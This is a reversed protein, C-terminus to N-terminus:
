QMTTQTVDKIERMTQFGDPLPYPKLQRVSLMLGVTDTVILNPLRKTKIMSAAANKIADSTLQTSVAVFYLTLNKPFDCYKDIKLAVNKQLDQKTETTFVDIGFIGEATYVLFDARNKGEGYYKQTHVYPEGFYEILTEELKREAEIGRINFSKAFESRHKGKGFDIDQYGLQERLARLGGFNRQILRSTPLYDTSDVEPSTPLRGNESIFRDFAVKLKERDWEGM